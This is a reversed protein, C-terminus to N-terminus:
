ICIIYFHRVYLNKLELFNLLTHVHILNPYIKSYKVILVLGNKVNSKCHKDNSEFVPM